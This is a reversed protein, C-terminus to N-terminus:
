NKYFFSLFCSELEFIVFLPLKLLETFKVVEEEEELPKDLLLSETGTGDEVFVVLREVFVLLEFAVAEEPLIFLSSKM